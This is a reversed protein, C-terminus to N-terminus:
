ITHLKKFTKSEQKEINDLLGRSFNYRNVRLVASNSPVNEFGCGALV